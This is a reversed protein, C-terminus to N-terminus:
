VASADAEFMMRSKSHGRIMCRERAQTTVGYGRSSSTAALPSDTLATDCPRNEAIAQHYEEAAYFRTFPRIETVIPGDFRGSKRLAGKSEEALGRQEDDHYFIATQYQPGRDVFQGGPDTPDIHRWFVGLLVKYSMAATDYHVQVAELHGTKGSCVEAYNPNETLGGTYGSIVRVVGPLKAFDAEMCWFCGGAFTAQRIKRESNPM